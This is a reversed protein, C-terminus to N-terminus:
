TEDASPPATRLYNRLTMGGSCLFASGVGIIFIAFALRPPFEICVAVGLILAFVGVVLFRPLGHRVRVYASMACVAIGGVAPAWQVVRAPDLGARGAYGLGLAAVGTVVLAVLGFVMGRAVRGKRGSGGPDVYGSRRYTVRERIATKIRPVFIAFALLLLMYLLTAPVFWSAKSEALTSGGMLLFIIGLTIEELGDRFWYRQTRIRAEFLPDPM